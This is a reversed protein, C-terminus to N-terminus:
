GEERQLGKLRDDMGVYTETGEAKLKMDWMVALSRRGSVVTIEKMSSLWGPALGQGVSGVENM